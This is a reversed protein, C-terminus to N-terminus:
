SPPNDRYPHGSDLSSEIGHEHCLYGEFKQRDLTSLSQPLIVAEKFDVPVSCCINNGARYLGSLAFYGTTLTSSRSYSYASGLVGNLGATLSTGTDSMYNLQWQGNLLEFHISNSGGDLAAANATFIHTGTFLFEIKWELYPSNSNISLWSSGNDPLCRMSFDSQTDGQAYQQFSHGSSTTNKASYHDAYAKIYGLADNSQQFYLDSPEEGADVIPRMMQPMLIM